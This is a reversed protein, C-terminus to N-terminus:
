IIIIITKTILCMINNHLSKLSAYGKYLYTYLDNFIYLDIFRCMSCGGGSIMMLDPVLVGLVGHTGRDVGIM